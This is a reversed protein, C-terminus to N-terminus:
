CDAYLKVIREKVLTVALSIKGEAMERLRNVEEQQAEVLPKAQEHGEKEARELIERTLARTEARLQEDLRSSDTEAQKRIQRAQQTAERILSGAEEEAKRIAKVLEVTMWGVVRSIINTFLLFCKSVNTKGM